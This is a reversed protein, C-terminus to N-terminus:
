VIKPAKRPIRSVSLLTALLTAAAAIWLAAHMAAADRLAVSAAGSVATGPGAVSMGAAGAGTAGAGAMGMRYAVIALVLAVVAAGLSQGFTRAIGLVGSAAGTRTRAVSGLMERNNPSQFFGFGLGCIFGRWCINVATAHAPLGALLAVGVTLVALGISSLVAPSHRDALRGAYPAALVIALPWPTFLLASELASYGLAGQFLFPLAIFTIGQGVFSCFSTLVAMSFRGSAFIDLPLLPRAAHRQRWVFLLTAVLATLGYAGAHSHNGPLTLQACADAALLLMGMATASLIAGALDFRTSRAAAHGAQAGGTAAPHRGDEPRQPIARLALAVAVIGLPVNVAFLWEWGLAALMAGGIAPGAATAAAVTLANIGLASGLLRTPFVTRYIAPGISFMAAGGVGQLLRMATLMGLSGSLACGLSALTFVLLGATYLRRFGVIDALSAFSVLLMATALLYANAVWIADGADVRLAHAITPLAVNVISGDLVAMTTGLMVAAMALRRERGPLGDDDPLDAFLKM